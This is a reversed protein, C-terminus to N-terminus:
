TQIIGCRSIFKSLEINFIITKEYLKGCVLLLSLLPFPIKEIKINYKLAMMKKASCKIDYFM